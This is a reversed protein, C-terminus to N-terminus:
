ALPFPGVQAPGLPSDLVTLPERYERRVYALAIGCGLDPSFAASTVQGAPRGQHALETGAPPVEAAEFKLGVLIKNVHGRSDLRAITEQGLYCGKQFSIAQRDRGVEQPLNAETMDRGYFPWGREIRLAELARRGCPEAGAEVLSAWLPAMSSRDSRLLFAPWPAELISCVPSARSGLVTEAIPGSLFLESWDASREQLQVDDRILYYELHALLKEAQGATTRLVLSEPGAWVIGHGVIRGKADTL